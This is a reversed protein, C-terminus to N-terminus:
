GPLVMKIPVMGGEALIVTNFTISELSFLM